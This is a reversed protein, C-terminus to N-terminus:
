AAEPPPDSPDIGFLKKLYRVVSPGTIYSRSGQKVLDIEGANVLEYIKTTGIKGFLARTENMPYIARAPIGLAEFLAQIESNSM